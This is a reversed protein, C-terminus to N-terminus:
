TFLLMKGTIRIDVSVCRAQIHHKDFECRRIPLRQTARVAHALGNNTDGSGYARSEDPPYERGKRQKM